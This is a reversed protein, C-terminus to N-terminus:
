VARELLALAAAPDPLHDAAAARAAPTDLVGGLAGQARCQSLWDRTWGLLRAILDHEGELAQVLGMGGPYLEVLAVGYLGEASEEGWLPVLELDGDQIGLHVPLVHRLAECLSVAGRAEFAAGSTAEAPLGFDLLLGRTQFSTRIPEDLLRVEPRSPYDAGPRPASRASVLTAVQVVGTVEEEYWLDAVVRRFARGHSGVTVPVGRPAVDWVAAHRRRWTEYPLDERHCAVHGLAVVEEPSSWEAMRYRQGGALFVRYPYAEIALRERDVWWCVGNAAALDRVEVREGHTATLPRGGRETPRRTRYQHDVVLKQQLDLCRVESRVLNGERAIAELTSRVLEKDNLFTDLLGQRTDPLEGLALLLQRRLFTGGARAAILRRGTGFGVTAKGELRALLHRLYPEHSSVLLGVHHAGRPPMRALGDGSAVRGGQSLIEPLALIQTPQVLQIRAEAQAAEIRLSDGGAAERLQQHLAESELLPLPGLDISTTWGGGLSALVASRALQGAHNASLAAPLHHLVVACPGDVPVEVRSEADFPLPLLGQVFASQQADPHAVRRMLTLIRLDALGHRDLLRHLRRSLAWLQAALVGSWDQVNWWVVLGLQEEMQAERLRHLLPDALTGADVVWLTGVPPLQSGGDIVTSAGDPLWRALRAALAAAGTATIVLTHTNHRRGLLKAALAVVEEQGCGDPALVVRSCRGEGSGAALLAALAEVLEPAVELAGMRRLSQDLRLAASGRPSRRDRGEWRALLRTPVGGQTLAQPWSAAVAAAPPEVPARWPSVAQASVPEWVVGILSCVLLALFVWPAAPYAGPGGGLRPLLVVVMVGLPLAWLLLWRRSAALGVGAALFHRSAPGGPAKPGALAPRMGFGILGLWLGFPLALAVLFCTRLSWGFAGTLDLLVHRGAHYGDPWLTQLAASLLCAPAVVLTLRSAVRAWFDASQDAGHRRISRQAALAVAAAALLLLLAPIM